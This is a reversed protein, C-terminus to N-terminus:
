LRDRKVAETGVWLNKVLEKFARGGKYSKILLERKYADQKSFYRESYVLKWPVGSKTSKVFGKNHRALRNFLNKCHGTYYRDLSKSHLIYVIFM